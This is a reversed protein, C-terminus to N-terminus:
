EKNELILDLSTEPVSALDKGERLRRYNTSLSASVSTIQRNIFMEIQSKLHMVTNARFNKIKDETVKEIRTLLTVVGVSVMDEKWRRTEPWNALYRGVTHEILHINSFFVQDKTEQDKNKLYKELIKCNEEDEIFLKHEFIPSDVASWRTQGKSLRVIRM